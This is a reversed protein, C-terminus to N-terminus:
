TAALELTFTAGGGQTDSATLTGGMATVLRHSIYLGLGHGEIGRIRANMARSFPRFLGERESPAIGIGHDVVALRVRAADRDLRLEVVGGSQGYKAANSLLNTLVQDLREEDGLVFAPEEMGLVDFVIARDAAMSDRVRDVAERVLRALDVRDRPIPAPDIDLRSIDLLEAVLRTARGVQQSLATLQREVNEGVAAERHLTRSLVQTGLMVATLPTKLEHSAVALFSERERAARERAEGARERARVVETTELAVSVVGPEHGAGAAYRTVVGSFYRDAPSGPLRVPADTTVFPEGTQRVRELIGIYAEAVDAPWVDAFRRGLPPESTLSRAALNAAAYRLEGGELVSIAMPAEEIITALFAREAAARVYADALRGGLVWGVSLTAVVALALLILGNRLAQDADAHAISLPQTLILGWEARPVSAFAALRGDSGQGITMTGRSGSLVTRVDARERLSTMKEAVAADSDLFVAGDRDVLTFAQAGALARVDREIEGLSLPATLMGKTGDTFTVPVTLPITRVLVARGVIARGAFERGALAPQFYDRDSVNFSYPERDTHAIDDGRADYLGLGQWAPQAAKHVRLYDQLGGHRARDRIRDTLALTRLAAFGGDITEDLTRAISAARAASAARDRERTAADSRALEFGILLVFPISAALLFGVIGLRTPAGGPTTM